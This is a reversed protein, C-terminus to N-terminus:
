ARGGSGQNLLLDDAQGARPNGSFVCRLKPKGLMETVRVALGRTTLVWKTTARRRNSCRSCARRGSCIAKEGASRRTSDAEPMLWVCGSVVVVNSSGPYRTTLDNPTTRPITTRDREITPLM